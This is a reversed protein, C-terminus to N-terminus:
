GRQLSRLAEKLIWMSREYRKVIDRQEPPLAAIRVPDSNHMNDALKVRIAGVNGSAAISRIWDMYSPRPHESQQRTVLQVIEITAESYGLDRLDRATTETDELVDHLLAAQLHDDSAPADAIQDRLLTM